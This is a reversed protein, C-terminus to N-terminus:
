LGVKGLLSKKEEGKNGLNLIKISTFANTEVLTEKMVYPWLGSASCVLINLTYFISLPFHSNQLAVWHSKQATILHM